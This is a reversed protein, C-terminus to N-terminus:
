NNFIIVVIEFYKFQSLYIDDIKIFQNFELKLKCNLPWTHDGINELTINLKTERTGNM